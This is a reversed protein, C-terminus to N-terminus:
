HRDRDATGRHCATEEVLLLVNLHIIGHGISPASSKRRLRLASSVHTGVGQESLGNILMPRGAWECGMAVFVTAKAAAHVSSPM